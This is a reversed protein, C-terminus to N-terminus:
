LNDLLILPEVDSSDDEEEDIFAEDVSINDTIAPLREQRIPPLWYRLRSWFSSVRIPLFYNTSLYKKFIEHKGFNIKERLKVLVLFRRRTASRDHEYAHYFDSMAYKNNIFSQSVVVLVRHTNSFAEAMESATSAGVAFDRDPVCTKYGCNTLGVLLTSLVWSEDAQCYMLYVDHLKGEDTEQKDFPHWNLKEFLLVKIEFRYVYCSITTITVFILLAILAAITEYAEIKECKFDDKEMQVIPIATFISYNSYM